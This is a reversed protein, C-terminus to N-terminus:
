GCLAYFRAAEAFAQRKLAAVKAADEDEGWLAIQWDEDIRSLTWAADPHLHGKAVAFALVLSGSLAVLDHVAALRFHGLDRLHQHLRALAAADQAVHIVGPTAKLPASLADASWQLLPDWAAAQRAVLAPPDIARYCLHDTDGYAALVTTVEEYQPVVKDLASNAMRTAPMTEPNVLSQQADWESAVLLALAETPLILSQKAPTNVRRGDLLVAFGGDEPAVTAEKWFRKPKWNSM